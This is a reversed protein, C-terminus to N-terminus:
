IRYSVSVKLIKGTVLVASGSALSKIAHAIDEPVEIREFSTDKVFVATLGEAGPTQPIGIV